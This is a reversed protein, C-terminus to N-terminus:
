IYDWALITQTQSIDNNKKILSKFWIIVYIQTFKAKPLPKNGTLCWTMILALTPQNNIPDLLLIWHSIQGVCLIKKWPLVNSFTQLIVAIKNLHWHNTLMVTLDRIYSAGWYAILNNIVWIYNSCRRDASSWSCRWERSLVQSWYIPCLCICSSVLIM